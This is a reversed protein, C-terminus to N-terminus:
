ELYDKIVTLKPVNKLKKFCCECYNKDNYKVVPPEDCFEEILVMIKRMDQINTYRLKTDDSDLRIYDENDIIGNEQSGEVIVTIMSAEQDEGCELLKAMIHKKSRPRFKHIKGSDCFKQSPSKYEKVLEEHMKCFGEKVVTRRCHSGTNSSWNCIVSMYTTYDSM